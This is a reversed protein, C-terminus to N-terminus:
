QRVQDSDPTSESRLSRNASSKAWLIADRAGRVLQWRYANVHYLTRVEEAWKTHWDMMPGYFEVTLPRSRRACLIPLALRRMLLAASLKRDSEDHTTKAIILTDARTLCLDSAVLRGDVILQLVLAETRAAYRRMLDRYFSTQHNGPVLATGLGAKWGASELRAYETIGEAVDEPSSLIRVEARRGERALRNQQKQLNQRLNAGRASWYADFDIPAQFRGTTIYDLSRVLATNASRTVLTPDQQWIGLSLAPGPLARLLARGVTESDISNSGIVAGLPGQSPQFTEWQTAGRRRVIAAVRSGDPLQAHVFRELGNGFYELCTRFFEWDLIPLDRGSRNLDTWLAQAAPSDLSMATM